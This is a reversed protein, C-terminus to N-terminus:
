DVEPGAKRARQGCKILFVVLYNKFDQNYTTFSAHIKLYTLYDQVEDFDLM